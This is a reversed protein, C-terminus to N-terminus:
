ASSSKKPKIKPKMREAIRARNVALAEPTPQWDNRLHPPIASMLRAPDADYQPKYGRIKMEEVLAQQRKALYSVKDYFFKVHGKGMTYTLPPNIENRESAARALAFVRPLERYEAVLHKGTLESPPVVNIRTM